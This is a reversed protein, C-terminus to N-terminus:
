RMLGLQQLTALVQAEVQSAIIRDLGEVEAGKLMADFGAEQAKAQKGATEAEEGATEAALKRMEMEEAPNPQSPGAKEAREKDWEPDIGPPLANRLREAIKDSYPVDLSKAVIDGAVQMMRPAAQMLGLLKDQAEMKRTAFAPGTAVVVDFKGRTVDNWVVGDPMIQNIEAFKEIEEDEGLIRIVRSDDYYHPILDILIRGTQNIAAEMNDIYVYTATDGQADRRAIAVGSTENSRAGLAADYIGTAAKMDEAAVMSEQYAASDLQPPAIRQPPAVDPQPEYPLFPWNKTNATEWMNKFAKPIQKVALLWPAKTSTAHREMMANRAYNYGVQSPKASHILGHRFVRDGVSVEEGVVRVFPIHKGPWAQWEGLMGGGYVLCSRVEYVPATRTAKVKLELLQILEESTEASLGAEEAMKFLETESVNEVNGQPLVVAFINEKRVERKEWYEARRVKDGELWHGNEDEFDSPSHKPHEKKFREESVMESVFCWMMDKRTPHKADPDCKVSNPNLIGEIGLEQDFSNDDCYHSKVRWWGQGGIVAKETESAYTHHADSGGEIHRIIATYIEAVEPDTNGDVPLVKIAPKNQRVDGSVQKVFQPLRNYSEYPRGEAKREAIASEPWQYEGGLYFERDEEDRKANDRDAEVAAYYRDRVTRAFEMDSM